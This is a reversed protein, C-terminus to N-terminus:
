HCEPGKQGLSFDVEHVCVSTLREKVTFLGTLMVAVDTLNM